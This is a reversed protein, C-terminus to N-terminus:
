CRWSIIINVNFGPPPLPDEDDESVPQAAHFFGHLNKPLNAEYKTTSLNTCTNQPSLDEDDGFAM